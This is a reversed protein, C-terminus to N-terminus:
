GRLRALFDEAIAQNSMLRMPYMLAIMENHMWIQAGELMEGPRVAWELARFPKAYRWDFAWLEGEHQMVWMGHDEDPADLIVNTRELLAPHRPTELFRLMGKRVGASLPNFGSATREWEALPPVWPLCAWDGRVIWHGNCLWAHGNRVMCFLRSAASTDPTTLFRHDNM